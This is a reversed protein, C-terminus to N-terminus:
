NPPKFYNFKSDSIPSINMSHFTIAESPTFGSTLPFNQFNASTGTYITLTVDMVTSSTNGVIRYDIEVDSAVPGLGETHYCSIYAYAGSRFRNSEFRYDSICSIVGIIISDQVLISTTGDSYYGNTAFYHDLDNTSNYSYDPTDNGVFPLASYYPMPSAGFQLARDNTTMWADNGLNTKAKYTTPLGYIQKGIALVGDEVFFPLLGSFGTLGFEPPGTYVSYDLDCSHGKTDNGWHLDIRAGQAIPCEIKYSLTYECTPDFILGSLGSTVQQLVVDVYEEDQVMILTELYNAGTSAGYYVIDYGSQVGGRVVIQPANSYNSISHATVQTSIFTLKLLAPVSGVSIRAVKPAGFLCSITKIDTGCTGYIDPM